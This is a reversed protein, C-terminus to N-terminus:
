KLKDIFKEIALKIRYDKEDKLVSKGELESLIIETIKIDDDLQKYYVDWKVCGMDKFDPCNYVSYEKGPHIICKPDMFESEDADKAYSSMHSCAPCYSKSNRQMKVKKLEDEFFERVIRRKIGPDAGQEVLAEIGEINRALAIDGHKKGNYAIKDINRAAMKYFEDNSKEIKEELITPSDLHIQSIISMKVNFALKWYLFALRSNKSEM